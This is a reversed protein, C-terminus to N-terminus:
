EGNAATLVAQAVNHSGGANSAPQLAQYSNFIEQAYSAESSAYGGYCLLVFCFASAFGLGHVNCRSRTGCIMVYLGFFGLGLFVVEAVPVDGAQFQHEGSVLSRAAIGIFLFSLLVGVSHRVKEGRSHGGTANPDQSGRGCWAFACLATLAFASFTAGQLVSLREHLRNIRGNSEPGRLLLTSEEHAFEKRFQLSNAQYSNGSPAEAGGPHFNALELLTARDLGPIPPAGVKTYTMAQIGEEGPLISGLMDPDNLFEFAVPTIMLGLLYALPFFALGIAHPRVEKPVPALLRSITASTLLDPQTLDLVVWLWPLAFLGIIVTEFTLKFVDM